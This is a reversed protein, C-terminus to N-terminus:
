DGANDHDIVPGVVRPPASSSEIVITLGPSTQTAAVQASPSGAMSELESVARVSAALNRDSDRIEALRRPNAACIGALFVQRERWLHALVHRKQLSLRMSRVTLGAKVAAEDWPTGREVMLSIAHALRGTVQGPKSAVQTPPRKMPAVETTTMHQVITSPTIDPL